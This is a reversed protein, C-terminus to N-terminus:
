DAAWLLTEPNTPAELHGGPMIIANAIASVDDPKPIVNDQEHFIRKVEIGADEFYATSPRADYFLTHMGEISSTIPRQLLNVASYGIVKLYNPNLKGAHDVHSAVEKVLLFPNIPKGNSGVGDVATIKEIKYTLEATDRGLQYEVASVADRHGNSHDIIHVGKKGSKHVASKTVAHVRRSRSENPHFVDMFGSEAHSVVAVDHGHSAVVKAVSNFTISGLWGPSIVILRDSSKGGTAPHYDYFIKKQGDFAEICEGRSGDLKSLVRSAGVM